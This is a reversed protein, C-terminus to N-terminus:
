LCPESQRFLLFTLFFTRSVARKATYLPLRESFLVMRIYSMRYLAVKGLHLYRTRAEDDAGFFYTWGKHISKNKQCVSFVLSSLLFRAAIAFMRHINAIRRTRAAAGAPAILPRAEDDAGSFVLSSLLFRAAIAFMRHINAIRRTRAAAGAPAILPRAEDDAGSFVLSSLLFRAAIAFMRHINAIRRTRAAAGAPAILPRAEDDAGSFVLSSLLFRAAIAFM